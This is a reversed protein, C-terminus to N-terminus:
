TSVVLKIEYLQAWDKGTVFLRNGKADYSIGNLVNEGYFGASGQLGSLDIWAKVQGTEPNIVAIKQEQFINAYVDGNIYELENLNSVSANGDRVQVQGVRRFTVPDLFLLSSSGNSMILRKGDFTLGWGESPYSFNGLMALSNKDYVFGIHSQWTLQIITDNVLTIGEGFFEDSLAIEQLVQGSDLDVRRLTSAGNLGTSEYLYGDAFFLGETFANQDHPYTKVVSFTYQQTTTTAPNSKELSIIISVSLFLITAVLLTTVSYSKKM